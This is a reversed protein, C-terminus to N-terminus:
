RGIMPRQFYVLPQLQKLRYLQAPRNSGLRWGDPVAELFDGEKVRKRFASKDINKGLVIEHIHQLESLTFSEPLLHVPLSSYEVKHRLHQLAAQILQAHDFALPGTQDLEDLVFWRTDEVASGSQLDLQEPNILAFFPFTASWGRPDRTHNGVGAFQELYPTAVGTKEKLKRLATAQLDDDRHIDIFGGPLAWRLRFPHEARQVLLVQLSFNQVTFIVIDVSTLPIDYDHINYSRLFEAEQQEAQM